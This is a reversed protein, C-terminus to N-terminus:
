CASHETIPLIRGAAMIAEQMLAADNATVLIRVGNTLLIEMRASSHAPWESNGPTSPSAGASTLRVPLFSSKALRPSATSRAETERGHLNADCKRRWNYFTAVSVGEWHCFEAVTLGLQSFRRFRSRWEQRKVVDVGRGM